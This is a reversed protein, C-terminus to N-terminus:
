GKEWRGCGNYHTYSYTPASLLLTEFPLAAVARRGDWTVKDETDRCFMTRAGFFLRFKVICRLTHLFSSTQDYSKEHWWRAGYRRRLITRYQSLIFVTRRGNIIQSWLTLSMFWLTTFNCLVNINWIEM